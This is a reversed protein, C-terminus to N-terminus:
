SGGRSKSAHYEINYTLYGTVRSAGPEKYVACARKQKLTVTKSIPVEENPNSATAGDNAPPAPPIPTPTVAPDPTAPAIPEVQPAPGVPPVPAAGPMPPEVPSPPVPAPNPMPMPGASPTVTPQEPTVPNLNQNQNEENM